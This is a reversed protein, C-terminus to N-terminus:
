TIFLSFQVGALNLANDLVKIYITNVYIFKLKCNM